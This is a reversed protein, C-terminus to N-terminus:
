RKLINKFGFWQLIMTITGFIDSWDSYDKLRRIKHDRQDYCYKLRKHNAIEAYRRFTIIIVYHDSNDLPSEFVKDDIM